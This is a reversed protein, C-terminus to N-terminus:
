LETKTIVMKWFHEPTSDQRLALSLIHRTGICGIVTNIRGIRFPWSHDEVANINLYHLKMSSVNPRGPRMPPIHPEAQLEVIDLLKKMYPSSDTM